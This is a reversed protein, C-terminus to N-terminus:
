HQLWAQARQRTMTDVDLVQDISTVKNSPITDLMAQNCEYINWFSIQEKLFAHVAVENSANLIVSSTGGMKLCQYALGLCPFRDLDPQSFDWARDVSWDYSAVPGPLVKPYFLSYQIPLKMDNACTQLQYSGDRYGVMAHVQSQPHISIKIQEPAFGFLYHAEIVELGKNMLTASDITIKPGMKWTPHNMAQQLTAHKIGELPTLRFPGGSATLRVEQINERNKGDLLQHLAAHESDIPLLHAKSKKQAQILLEGGVVLSEKNALCVHKGAVVASYTSRLGYSGVIASVVTDVSSSSVLAELGDQGFGFEPAYSLAQRVWQLDSEEQLVIFSPRHQECQALFVEKNKGAAMGVIKLADSHARVVELTSQGISGTSGLLAIQKM